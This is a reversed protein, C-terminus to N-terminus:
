LLKAFKILYWKYIRLRVVFAMATRNLFKEGTGTDQSKGGSEGRHTESDRTKYPTGQDV